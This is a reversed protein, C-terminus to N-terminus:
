WKATFAVVSRTREDPRVREIDGKEIFVLETRLRREVRSASISTLPLLSAGIAAVFPGSNMTTSEVLGSRRVFNRSSM